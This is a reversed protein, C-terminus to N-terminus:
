VHIDVEQTSQDAANLRSHRPVPSAAPVTDGSDPVPHLLRKRFIRRVTGLLSRVKDVIGLESLWFPFLAFGSYNPTAAGLLRLVSLRAWLNGRAGILNPQSRPLLSPDDAVEELYGADLAAQLLALGRRTRAVILSSGMEDPEIDRHWPDGVAIDAFEGTHDACVYCRWQRHKQLFHWSEAYTMQSSQRNDERDQYDLTWHGPWGNGRYRLANIDGAAAAGEREALALTASTSPVGACFFAITLGTHERLAPSHKEARRLAAVDCPKGVFVCPGDAAAIQDLGECPSSPAYRSGTTALLADRDRSFVTRNLYPREPDAATHLVGHMGRQELCFLALATAAGGSSGAFRIDSDAAHGEIVRYVPGWAPGLEPLLGSDSVDYDHQLGTGPCAALAVGTEAPADKRVVPRRGEEVVDVMAYRQPELSACAGCGTCLHSRRVEEITKIKQM